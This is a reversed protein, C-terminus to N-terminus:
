EFKEKEILCQPGDRRVCLGVGLCKQDWLGVGDRKGHHSCGSIKSQTRDAKRWYFTLGTFTPLKDQRIRGRVWGTGLMSYPACWMATAFSHLDQGMWARRLVSCRSEGIRQHLGSLWYVRIRVLAQWAPSTSVHAGVQSCGLSRREATSVLTWLLIRAYLDPCGAEFLGVTWSAYYKRPCGRHSVTQHNRLFKFVSHGHSRTRGSRSIDGWYGFTLDQCTGM